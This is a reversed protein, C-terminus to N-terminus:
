FIKINTSNRIKWSSSGATDSQQVPQGTVSRLTFLVLQEM